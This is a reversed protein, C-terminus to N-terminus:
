DVHVFDCDEGKVDTSGDICKGRHVAKATSELIESTTSENENM